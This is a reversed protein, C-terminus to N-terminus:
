LTKANHKSGKRVKPIPMVEVILEDINDMKIAIRRHFYKNNGSGIVGKERGTFFIYTPKNMLEMQFSVIEKETMPITEYEEGRGSVFNRVSILFHSKNEPM